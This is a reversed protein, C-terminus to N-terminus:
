SLCQGIVCTLLVFLKVGYVKVKIFPENISIEDNEISLSKSIVNIQENDDLKFRNRKNNEQSRADSYHWALIRQNFIESINNGAVM